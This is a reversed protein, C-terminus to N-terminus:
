AVVGMQALVEALHKRGSGKLWQHFQQFEGFTNTLAQLDAQPNLQKTDILESLQALIPHSRLETKTIQEYRIEGGLVQTLAQAMQNGTLQQGAIDLTQDVFQPAFKFIHAVVRGIDDGAIVYWPQDPPTLFNLTGQALNPSFQLLLEMFSPPRVITAPVGSHRIYNEITTKSDFHGLNLLERGAGNVSSYVFHNIKKEVAIDVLMCGYRIEDEDTFGYREGQGSSPQMSFVGSVGDMAREVSARDAFEGQVLEVGLSRLFNSQESKPNRVMARVSAGSQSLARAVAGGQTGTAGFVLIQTQNEM